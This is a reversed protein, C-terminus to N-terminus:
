QACKRVHVKTLPVVWMSDAIVVIMHCQLGLGVRADAHVNCGLLQAPPWVVRLYACLIGSPLENLIVGMPEVEHCIASAWLTLMLM